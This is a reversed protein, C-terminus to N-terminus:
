STVASQQPYISKDSHNARLRAGRLLHSDKVSITIHVWVIERLWVSDFQGPM